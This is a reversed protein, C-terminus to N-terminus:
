NDAPAARKSGSLEFGVLFTFRSYNMEFDGPDVPTGGPSFRGFLDPKDARGFSYGVGGTVRSGLFRTAAGVSLHYLDWSATSLLPDQTAAVPSQDVSFSSYLSTNASIEQEVGVGANFVDDLVQDLDLVIDDQGQGPSLPESALIEGQVSNYWEGSLHLRTKGYLWSGGAGVAWSSRYDADLDDAYGRLLFTDPVQDGDLDIGTM